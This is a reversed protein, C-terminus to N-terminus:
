SQLNQGSLWDKLTQSAKRAYEFHREKKKMRKSPLKELIGFNINM